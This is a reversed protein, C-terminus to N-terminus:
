TDSNPSKAGSDFLSILLKLIGGIMAGSYRIIHEFPTLKDVNWTM